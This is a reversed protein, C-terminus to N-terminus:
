SFTSTKDVHSSDEITKISSEKELAIDTADSQDNWCNSTEERLELFKTM